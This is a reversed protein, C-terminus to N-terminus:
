KRGAIAPALPTAQSLLSEIAALLEPRPDVPAPAAVFPVAGESLRAHLERLECQMRDLFARLEVDVLDHRLLVTETETRTRQLRALTTGQTRFLFGGVFARRLQGAPNFQYVPDPGFYISLSGDRKFGAVVPETRDPFVYEARRVLAVAERLLDERDSEDRAM